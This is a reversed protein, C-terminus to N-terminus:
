PAAFPNCTNNEVQLDWAGQQSNASYPHFLDIEAMFVTTMHYM